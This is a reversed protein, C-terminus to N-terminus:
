KLLFSNPSSLAFSSEELGDQAAHKTGKTLDFDVQMSKTAEKNCAM